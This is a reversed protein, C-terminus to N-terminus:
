DPSSRAPMRAPMIHREIVSRYEDLMIMDNISIQQGLFDAVVQFYFDPKCIQHPILLELDNHCERCLYIVPSLEKRMRGFHRVPLVHHETM